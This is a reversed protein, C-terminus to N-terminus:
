IEKVWWTRKIRYIIEDIAFMKESDKIFEKLIEVL